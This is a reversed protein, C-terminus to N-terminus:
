ALDWIDRGKSVMFAEYSEGTKVGADPLGPFKLTGAHVDGLTTGGVQASREPVTGLGGLAKVRVEMGKILAFKLFAFM